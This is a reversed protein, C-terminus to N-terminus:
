PLAGEPEAPAPQNGAQANDCPAGDPTADSTALAPDLADIPTLAFAAEFPEPLTPAATGDAVIPEVVTPQAAMAEPAVTAFAPHRGVFGLRALPTAVIGGGAAQATAGHGERESLDLFREALTYILGVLGVAGVVIAIEVLSPSYAAYPASAVGSAVSPPAIQGASVFAIRDVFMGVMALCAAPLVVTRDILGPLALLALPAVLGIGVKLLWFHVSLPGTLQAMAAGHAAPAGSAVAVAMEWTTYALVLGIALALLRRIAPLVAAHEAASHEHGPRAIGPRDIMSFVIGLIATGSLIATLLMYVPVLSESWFSRSVLVGFVAGLTSPAAIAMVLCLASGVKAIREFGALMGFLEVLLFVMYICYLVGMWWMASTPSPSLVVGFVLRIPYHLDLGIVAFGALLFALALVVARKAVPKFAEVGFVQGLASVLCLGSTTVVLFVYSAILVGWEITPTTGFVEDGPPITLVAGVAGIAVLAGLFGLWRKLPSPLSVVEVRVTSWALRPHLSLPHGAVQLTM